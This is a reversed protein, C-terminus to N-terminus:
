CTKAMIWEGSGLISMENKRKYIAYILMRRLLCEWIGMWDLTFIEPYHETIEMLDLHKGVSRAVLLSFLCTIQVGSENVGRNNLSTVPVPFGLCIIGNLFFLYIPFVCDTSSLLKPIRRLLYQSSLREM